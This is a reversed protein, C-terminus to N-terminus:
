LVASSPAPCKKLEESGSRAAECDSSMLQVIVASLESRGMTLLGVRVPFTQKGLALRQGSLQVTFSCM